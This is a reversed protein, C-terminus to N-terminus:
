SDDDDDDSDDDSSDDSSDDECKLRISETLTWSTGDNYTGMLRIEVRDGETAGAVIGIVAAKDFVVEIRDRKLDASTPSVQGSPGVLTISGLNVERISDGKLTAFVPDDNSSGGTVWEPCWNDPDLELELEPEGSHDDDSEDDSDENEFSRRMDVLVVDDNATLELMIRIEETASVGRIDVEGIQIGDRFFMVTVRGVPVGELTFTGNSRVNVTISTDQKVSVKIGEFSSNPSATQRQAATSQSAFSGLIRNSKARQQTPTTPSSNCALMSVLAMVGVAFLVRCFQSM